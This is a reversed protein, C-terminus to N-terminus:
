TLVSALPPGTACRSSRAGLTAAAPSPTTTTATVTDGFDWAYSAVSGDSDASAGGDVAVGLGTTASSFAAVPAANPKNTGLAYHQAITTADLPRAYVAAEDLSGAWYGSGSNWSSDGGLRWYGRYGDSATTPNSGVQAGDVYLKMGDFGQTAVM